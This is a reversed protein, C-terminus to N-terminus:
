KPITTGPTQGAPASPVVEGAVGQGAHLVEVAFDKIAHLATIAPVGLISAIALGVASKTIPGNAM